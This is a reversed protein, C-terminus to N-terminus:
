KRPDVTVQKALAIAREKIADVDTGLRDYTLVVGM